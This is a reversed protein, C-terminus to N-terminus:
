GDSAEEANPLPKLLEDMRKNIANFKYDPIMFEWGELKQRLQEAESQPGEETAGEDADNASDADSENTSTDSDEGDVAVEEANASKIPELSVDMRAMYQVTSTLSAEDDAESGGEQQYLSMVLNIGNDTVFLARTASEPLPMDAKRVDDARLSALSNVIGNVAWQGSIERDEPINMLNMELAEPQEREIRIVDGDSHRITVRQLRSGQWDVLSKEVWDAPDTKVDLKQDVLYSQQSGPQRVYRGTLDGAEIGIILSQGSQDGWRLLGGGTNDSSVDAVGLRSYLSERATKPAIVKSQGLERLLSRVEPWNAAYGDREVIGWGNDNRQLTVLTSNGAGIIELSNIDNAVSEFQPLLLEGAAVVDDSVPKATKPKLGLQWALLVAIVAAAMLGIFLSRKM